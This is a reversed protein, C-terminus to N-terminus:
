DFYDEISDLLRASGYRMARLLRTRGRKLTRSVTSVNINLSSAIDRMPIQRIYYLEILEKQRNTLEDELADFVQGTRREDGGILKLFQRMAKYELAKDM